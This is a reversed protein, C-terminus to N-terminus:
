VGERASGGARVWGVGSAGWSWYRMPRRGRYSRAKARLDAWADQAQSAVQRLTRGVWQGILGRGCSEKLGSAKEVPDLKFTHAPASVTSWLLGTASDDQRPVVAEDRM